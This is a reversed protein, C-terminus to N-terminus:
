VKPIIIPNSNTYGYLIATFHLKTGKYRRFEHRVKIITRIKYQTESM